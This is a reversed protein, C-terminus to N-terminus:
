GIEEREHVRNVSRAKSLFRKESRNSCSLEVMYDQLRM